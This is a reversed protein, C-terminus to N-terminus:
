EFVDLERPFSYMDSAGIAFPRDAMICGCKEFASSDSYSCESGRMEYVPISKM